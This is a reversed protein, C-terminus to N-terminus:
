EKGTIERLRAYDDERLSKLVRLVEEGDIDTAQLVAAGLQLSAEFAEPVVVSAGARELDRAHTLDRARVVIRLEPCLEQMAAVARSAEEARDITIAAAAARELGTASLVRAQSADGYFVPMGSARCHAVRVPDLDLAVFPIDLASLIKAITQGVRGFGAIVVHGELEETAEGIGSVDALGERMLRKSIQRGALALVPTVAMSLTVVVLLIQGVAPELVGAAMAAGFLVFGFEGGQALLLGARVAAGAPLGFGRCLAGIVGAKAIVLGVVLAPIVMSNTTVLSLDVSMGVTIFFLGLLIGRYPRIDAEVQHRYETEALLLGALFAGLVMSLGALSTLWSTGLIVLLTAAVLTESSGTGAIVRYAPRLAFRGVVVIVALAMVAKAAALGIAEVPTAQARGLLPVLILFPVVALDQFLLVSFVTRGFRTRQEGREILLQLVFATSSLALGAGIVIAAAPPQGAALAVGSIAAGTVAVQLAGLGFVYRRMGKLREVSLELGILFLLFVVGFEALARASETESVIAFGHPGVAIGAALYGLIPSTRLRQCLPVVVVAVILFVLADYFLGSQNM